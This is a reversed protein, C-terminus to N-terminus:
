QPFEQCGGSPRFAQYAHIRARWALSRLGRRPERRWAMTGGSWGMFDFDRRPWMEARLAEYVSPAQADHFAMVGCPLLKPAWRRIDAVVAATAHDADVFVFGPRLDYEGWRPGDIPVVNGLGGTRARFEAWTDSTRARRHDPTGRFLSVAFVARHPFASALFATTAGKWSGLEVIPSGAPSMAVAELLLRKDDLSTSLDFPAAESVVVPSRSAPM